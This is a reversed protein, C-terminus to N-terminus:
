GFELFSINIGKRYVSRFDNGLYKRFTDFKKDQVTQWVTKEKEILADKESAALSVAALAFFTMTAFSMIKKM